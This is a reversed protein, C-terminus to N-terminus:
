QALHQLPAAAMRQRCAAEAAEGELRASGDIAPRDRQRVKIDLKVPVHSLADQAVGGGATLNKLARESDFVEVETRIHSRKSQDCVICSVPVASREHKVPELAPVGIHAQRRRANLKGLSL